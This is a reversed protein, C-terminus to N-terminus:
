RRSANVDRCLAWVGLLCAIMLLVWEM